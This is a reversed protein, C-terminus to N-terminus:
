APSSGSSSSSPWGRAWPWSPPWGFLWASGGAAVAGWLAQGRAALGIAFGGLPFESLLSLLGGLYPRTLFLAGSALTFLVNLPWLHYGFALAYAPQALLAFPLLRRLYREPSVGRALRHAMLAAFGPFVLRGPLRWEHEWGLVSALHDLVM